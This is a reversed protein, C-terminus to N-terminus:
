TSSLPPSSTGPAPAKGFTRQQALCEKLYAALTDPVAESFAPIAGVQREGTLLYTALAVFSRCRYDRVALHADRQAAEEIRSPWCRSM